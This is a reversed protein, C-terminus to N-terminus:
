FSRSEGGDVTVCAGNLYAAPASCIFAVVSAVEEPTGMRGLPFNQQTTRQFAAPSKRREVSWGNAPVMITGPAVSNFTLGDRVLERRQSLSKMLSIQASKAVCFWPRGGAEKGYISAITVVRGWKQRRMHPIAWKTFRMAATTNKDFVERWVNEPTEEVSESGWRGGGGVNNVLVDIRKWEREIQRTVNQIDGPLLVDARIALTKVKFKKLSKVASALKKPDRSCIAVHCGEAALAEATALGIGHSGGTVLAYKGKLGLNM